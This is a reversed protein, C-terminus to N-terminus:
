NADPMQNGVTHIRKYVPHAVKNKATKTTVYGLINDKSNNLYIDGVQVTKLHPNDTADGTAGRTSGKQLNKVDVGEKLLYTPGQQKLDITYYHKNGVAVSVIKQNEMGLPPSIPKGSVNTWEFHSRVRLNTAIVSNDKNTKKFGTLRTSGPETISEGVTMFVKAPANKDVVLGSRDVGINVGDVISEGIDQGSRMDLFKDGEWFYIKGEYQRGLEALYNNKQNTLQAELQKNNANNADRLKARIKALDNTLQRIKQGEPTLGSTGKTKPIVAVGTGTDPKYADVKVGESVKPPVGEGEIVRLTNGDPTVVERSRNGEADPVGVRPVRFLGSALAEPLLEVLTAAEPSGTQEFVNDAASKIAQSIPDTLENLQNFFEVGEETTPERGHTEQFLNVADAADKVIEDWSKNASTMGAVLGRLGSLPETIAATALTSAVDLVVPDNVFKM